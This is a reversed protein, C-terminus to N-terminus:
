CLHVVLADRPVNKDRHCPIKPSLNLPQYTILEQIYWKFRYVDTLGRTVLSELRSHYYKPCLLRKSSLLISNTNLHSVNRIEASTTKLSHVNQQFNFNHMASIANYLDMGVVQACAYKSRMVM